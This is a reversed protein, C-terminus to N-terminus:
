SNASSARAPAYMAPSLRTDGLSRVLYRAVNLRSAAPASDASRASSEPGASSASASSM